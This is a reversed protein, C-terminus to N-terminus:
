NWQSSYSSCANQEITRYDVFTNVLNLQSARVNVLPFKKLIDMEEHMMIMMMFPAPGLPLRDPLTIITAVTAEARMIIHVEALCELCYVGGSLLLPFHYKKNKSSALM